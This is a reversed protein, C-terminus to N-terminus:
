WVRTVLRGLLFWLAASAVIYATFRLLVINVTCQVLSHLARAVVFLWAAMLDTHTAWGMQIMVLCVAYFLVPLEFLNKLNNASFEVEEPVAAAMKQPTNVSQVDVGRSLMYGLRRVYMYVWVVATLVMMAVMPRLLAPILDNPNM